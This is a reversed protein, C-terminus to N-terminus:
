EMEIEFEHSADQGWYNLVLKYHQGAHYRQTDLPITFEDESFHGAPLSARMVVQSCAEEAPAQVFEGEMGIIYWRIIHCPTPVELTATDGTNNKLKLSIPLSVTTNSKPFLIKEPMEVKVALPASDQMLDSRSITYVTGVILVIWMITRTIAQRAPDDLKAWFDRINM